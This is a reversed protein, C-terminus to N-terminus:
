SWMAYGRLDEASRIVKVWIAGTALVVGGDVVREGTIKHVVAGCGMGRGCWESGVGEDDEEGM